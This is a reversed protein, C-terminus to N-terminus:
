DGHWPIALHLRVHEAEGARFLDAQKIGQDVARFLVRRAAAEVEALGPAPRGETEAERWQSCFSELVEHVVSGVRLSAGVADPLDMVHRVYFCRPCGSYAAAM